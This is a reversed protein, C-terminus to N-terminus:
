CAACLVWMMLLLSYSVCLQNNSYVAVCIKIM